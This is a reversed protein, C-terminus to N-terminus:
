RVLHYIKKDLLYLKLIIYVRYNRQDTSIALIRVREDSSDRNPVINRINVCQHQSISFILLQNLVNSGDM